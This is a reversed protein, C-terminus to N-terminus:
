RCFPPPMQVQFLICNGATDGIAKLGFNVMELKDMWICTPGDEPQHDDLVTRQKCRPIESDIDTNSQTEGEVELILSRWRRWLSMPIEERGSSTHHMVHGLSAQSLNRLYQHTGDASCGNGCFGQGLSCAHAFMLKTKSPGLDFSVKLPQNAYPYDRDARRFAVGEIVHWWWDVGLREAAHM